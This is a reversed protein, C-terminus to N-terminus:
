EMKRLDNVADWDPGPPAHHLEVCHELYWRSPGDMPDMQLCGEFAAIAEGFRRIRYLALGEQFRERLESQAPTLEGSLSLLEFVRTSEKRGQVRFCGLERTEIGSSAHQATSESILIGTGLSKNAAELRSGLNVADGIMTYNFRGGSSSRFGMFGVVASGTHIGIRASLGTEGQGLDERFRALAAQNRLAARCAHLAHDPNPMPANWFAVIADGVYKDITAGEEHLIRCMATLYDNVLDVVAHPDRDESFQTFGALDSFFISIEQREGGLRLQSLDGLVSNVIAPPLFHELAYRAERQGRGATVSHWVAAGTYSLAAGVLPAVLELRIDRYRFLLFASVGYGVLLAAVGLTARLHRTSMVLFAPVFCGVALFLLTTWDPPPRLFNSNMLNDIAAAHFEVGAMETAFPNERLDLLGGADSGLLLIRDGLARRLDDPDMNMTEAFGYVPYTRAGGHFRLALLSRDNRAGRVRVRETPIARSGLLIRGERVELASDGAILDRAIRLGPSPYLRGAHETLLPYHRGIKDGDPHFTVDVVGRSSEALARALAGHPLTIGKARPLALSDDSTADVAFISKEQQSLTGIEDHLHFMAALYVNGARRIADAFLRDDAASYASQETYLMDFFVARPKAPALHDLLEGYVARPWPWSLQLERAAREIDAQSINIIALAPDARKADSAWRFRVDVSASELRTLWGSEQLSFTCVLSLAGIAAVAYRRTISPSANQIHKSRASTTTAM